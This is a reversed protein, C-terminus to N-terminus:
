KELPGLLDRFVSITGIDTSEAIVLSVDRFGVGPGPLSEDGSM